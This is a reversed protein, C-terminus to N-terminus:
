FPICIGALCIEGDNCEVSDCTPIISYICKDQICVYGDPCGVTHCSNPNVVCDGDECIKGPICYVGCCPDYPEAFLCEENNLVGCCWQYVFDFIGVVLAIACLTTGRPIPLGAAALIRCVAELYTLAGSVYVLSVVSATVGYALMGCGLKEYWKDCKAKSGGEWLLHGYQLSIHLLGAGFFQLSEIEAANFTRSLRETNFAQNIFSVIYEVDTVSNSLEKLGQSVAILQKAQKGTLVGEKRLQQFQKPL